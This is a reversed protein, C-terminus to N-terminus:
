EELGLKCIVKVAWHEQWGANKDPYTSLLRESESLSEGDHDVNSPPPEDAGDKDSGGEGDGNEDEGGAHGNEDEGGKHGNEDEGGKHGNEDDDDGHGNEDDDDDDGNEFQEDSIPQVGDNYEKQHRYVRGMWAGRRQSDRPEGDSHLGDDSSDQIDGNGLAPLPNSENDSEAPESGGESDSGAPSPDGDGGADPPPMTILANSQQVPSDKLYSKMEHVAPHHARNPSNRWLYRLAGVCRKAKVAEEAARDM